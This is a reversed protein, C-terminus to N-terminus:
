SAYIKMETTYHSAVRQFLACAEDMQSLPGARILFYM